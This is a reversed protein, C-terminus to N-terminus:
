FFKKILEFCSNNKANNNHTLDVFRKIIKDGTEDFMLEPHFQLTVGLGNKFELAEIVPIKDYSTAVVKYTKDKNPIIVAQHHLSNVLIKKEDFVSFIESQDSVKIFHEGDLHVTSAKIETQIDQYLKKHNAVACMQHGRCIGFNMGKKAEIFQRVFKLESLDRHRITYKAYTRKEGYLYPDIDAGGMILQADFNSIINSRYKKAEAITLSADHVVPLVYVEAGFGELRKIINIVRRGYPINFLERLENTVVIFRPKSTNNIKSFFGNAYSLKGYKMLPQIEDQKILDKLSNLTHIKQFYLDRAEEPKQNSKLPLLIKPGNKFQQWVIVDAGFAKAVSLASIIVVVYFISIITKM